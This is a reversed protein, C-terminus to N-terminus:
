SLFRTTQWSITDAVTCGSIVMGDAGMGPLAEDGTFFVNPYTTTNPLLSVGMVPYFASEFLWTYGPCTNAKGRGMSPVISSSVHVLNHEFFPILAKLRELINRGLESIRQKDLHDTTLPVRCTVTLIRTDKSDDYRDDHPGLVLSLLNGGLLPKEPDDIILVREAMGVPVVNRRIHFHLRYHFGVAQIEQIRRVYEHDRLHGPLREYFWHMDTNVLLNLCHYPQYKGDLYVARVRNSTFIIKRISAEPIILGGREVIFSKLMSALSPREFGLGFTGDQVMSLCHAASTLTPNLSYLRSFAIVQSMLAARFSPGFQYRDLIDGFREQSAKRLSILGLFSFSKKILSKLGRPRHPARLLFYHRLANQVKELTRFLHFVQKPDEHFEEALRELFDPEGSRIDVRLRPMVIQFSPDLPKVLTTRGPLAALEDLAKKLFWQGVFHTFVRENSDAECDDEKKNPMSLLLVKKGRKILLAAALLGGLHPGVVIIEYFDNM